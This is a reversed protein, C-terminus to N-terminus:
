SVKKYTAILEGDNDYFTLTDKDVKFTYTITGALLGQLKIRDSSISCNGSYNCDDSTYTGDEFFELDDLYGYDGRIYGEESKWRGVISDSNSFIDCSFM